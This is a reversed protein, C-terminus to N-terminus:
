SLGEWNLRSYRRMNPAGGLRSASVSRWVAGGSGAQIGGLDAVEGAAGKGHSAYLVPMVKGAAPIDKGRCRTQM